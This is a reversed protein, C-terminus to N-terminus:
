FKYIPGLKEFKKSSGFSKFNTFTTCFRLLSKNKKVGNLGFYKSIFFNKLQIM